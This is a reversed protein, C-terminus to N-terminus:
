IKIKRLNNFETNLTSLAELVKRANELMEDINTYNKKIKNSADTVEVYRSSDPDADLLYEEETKIITEITVVHTKLEEINNIFEVSLAHEVSYGSADNMKKIYNNRITMLKLNLMYIKKDYDSKSNFNYENVLVVDKFKKINNM